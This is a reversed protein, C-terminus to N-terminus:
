IILLKEQIKNKKITQNSINLYLNNYFELVFVVYNEHKFRIVHEDFLILYADNRTQCNLRLQKFVGRYNPFM